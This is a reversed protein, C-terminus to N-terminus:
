RIALQENMSAKRHAASLVLFSCAASEGRLDICRLEYRGPELTLREASGAEMLRGNLFWTLGTTQTARVQITATRGVIIFRSGATPSLIRLGNALEPPLPMLRAAPRTAPAPPDNTVRLSPLDLLQALLPEAAEAGVYQPEAGGDFRGIWVGVAFRQNHGVAWADRRGSSTGTKWMFWPVNGADREEMGHPRRRRSSLIDNVMACTGPGLVRIDPATEDMFLRASRRVGGRGLTAYGNVLDLLSIETAGTVISLGARQRAAAPLDIGAAEIVGVCRALGVAEAVLIAPVNLSRRLAEDAPLEGAFHKDFNTPSWGARNIPIDYLITHEDLLGSEIAAAYIFPKLTSGPSRRALVGNVQGEMPDALDRSGALAVISSEHIDIVVIAVQSRTPLQPQYRAALAQVGAQIAPDITTQGGKPRRLLAMFGAHSLSDPSPSKRQVLIPEALALDVQAPAVMGLTAMRALVHKRRCQAREAFRDPRYRSPSQPLGALLAAEGLTLDSARKRFYAQAAAEVGRLNGGYPATNLYLELIQDKNRLQELQLARFTEIVKAPFTRPRDDMMRCVQMTITSAGSVTRMSWVNQGIARVIALCDVGYHRYFREDEVAITAHIMWPSIEGLAVPRRWQGDKGVVALIPQGTWDTAQPSTPWRQLRDIPFPFTKWVVAVSACMLLVCVGSTIAVRKRWRRYFRKLGTRLRRTKM